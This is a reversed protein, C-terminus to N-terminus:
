KAKSKRLWRRVGFVVLAIIFFMPWLRALVLMFGLLGKWGFLFSDSLESFFSEEEILPEDPDLNEYLYIKITSFQVQDQLFRLRGEKAEIEEQLMGIKAEVKLVDAISDAKKLIDYYRNLIERKTKLRSQIDVFEETVNKVNTEKAHVKHAIPVIADFLGDFNKQAVRVVITNEIRYHTQDEQENFVSADHNKVVGSLAARASAYNKVEM